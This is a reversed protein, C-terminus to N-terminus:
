SRCPNDSFLLVPCVEDAAKCIANAQTKSITGLAGNVTAAAKKLQLGAWIFRQHPKQGSIQFNEVARATQAGYYAEAPIKMEGM